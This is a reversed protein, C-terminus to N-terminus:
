VATTKIAASILEFLEIFYICEQKTPKVLKFIPPILVWSTSGILSEAQISWKRDKPNFYIDMKCIDLKLIRELILHHNLTAILESNIQSENNDVFYAKKISTVGEYKVSINRMENDNIHLTEIDATLVLDYLKSLLRNQILYRLNIETLSKTETLHFNAKMFDQSCCVGKGDIAETFANVVIGFKRNARRNIRDQSIYNDNRNMKRMMTQNILEPIHM